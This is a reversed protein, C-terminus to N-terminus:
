GLYFSGDNLMLGEFDICGIRVTAIEARPYSVM